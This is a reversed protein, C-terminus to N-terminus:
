TDFRNLLYASQIIFYSILFFYHIFCKGNGLQWDLTMGKNKAFSIINKANVDNWSGNVNRILVNLDFIM